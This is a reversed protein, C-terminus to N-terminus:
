LLSCQKRLVRQPQITSPQIDAGLANLERAATVLEELASIVPSPLSAQKALALISVVCASALNACCKETCFNRGNYWESRIPCSECHRLTENLIYSWELEPALGLAVSPTCCRESLAHKVRTKPGVNWAFEESFLCICCHHKKLGLCDEPSITGGCRGCVSPCSMLLADPQPRAYHDLM